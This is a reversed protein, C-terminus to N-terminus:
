IIMNMGGHLNRQLSLVFSLIIVLRNFEISTTFLAIYLRTDKRYNVWLCYQQLVLILSFYIDIYLWTWTIYRPVRTKQSSFLLPTKKYLITPSYKSPVPLVGKSLTRFFNICSFWYTMIRKIYIYIIDTHTHTNEHTCSPPYSMCIPM